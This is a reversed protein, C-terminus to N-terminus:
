LTVTFSCGGYLVNNRWIRVSYNGTKLSTSSIEFSVSDQFGSVSLPQTTVTGQNSNGITIYSDDKLCKGTITIKVVGAVGQLGSLSYSNKDSNMGSVIMQPSLLFGFDKKITKGDPNTVSVTKIESLTEDNVIGFFDKPLRFMIQGSSSSSDVKVSSVQVTGISVMVGNKAFGKGGIILSDNPRGIAAGNLYDPNKIFGVVMLRKFPIVPSVVKKSGVRIQVVAISTNGPFADYDLPFPNASKIVLQTTTASVVTALSAYQDPTGDHWAGFASGTLRGFEVTDKNIDTDFGTGNITFEDDPYPNAPTISTITLSNNNGGGGNNGGGNGNNGGNTGGGTSSNKSCSFLLIAILFSFIKKM